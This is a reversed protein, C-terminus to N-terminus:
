LSGAEDPTQRQRAARPSETDWIRRSPPDVVQSQSSCSLSPLSKQAKVFNLLTAQFLVHTSGMATSFNTLDEKGDYPYIEM